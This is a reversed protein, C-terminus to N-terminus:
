RPRDLVFIEVAEGEARALGKFRTASVGLAVLYDRVSAARDIALATGGRPDGPASVRLTTSQRKLGDAMRDLVAALAPKVASRGTDFCYRLPVSVQLRGGAALDVDVPTGSLERRLRWQEDPLTPARADAGSPATSCGALALLACLPSATLTTLM